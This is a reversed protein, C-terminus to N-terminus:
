RVASCLVCGSTRECLAYTERRVAHRRQAFSVGRGRVPDEQWQSTSLASEIASGYENRHLAPSTDIFYGVPWSVHHPVHDTWQVVCVCVRIKKTAQVRFGVICACFVGRCFRSAVTCSSVSSFFLVFFSFYAFLYDDLPPVRSKCAPAFALGKQRIEWIYEAPPTTAIRALRTAAVTCRMGQPAYM